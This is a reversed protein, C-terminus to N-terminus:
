MRIFNPRLGADIISRTNNVGIQSTYYRADNFPTVIEINFINSRRSSVVVTLASVRGINPDREPEVNVPTDPQDAPQPQSAAINAEVIDAAAGFDTPINFTWRAAGPHGGTPVAARRAGTLTTPRGAQLPVQERPQQPRNAQGKSREQLVQAIYQKNEIFTPKLRLTCHKRFYANLEPYDRLLNDFNNYRAELIKTITANEGIIPKVTKPFYNYYHHVNDHLRLGFWIRQYISEVLVTNDASIALDFSQVARLISNHIDDVAHNTLDVVEGNEDLYLTDKTFSRTYVHRLMNSPLLVLDFTKNISREHALQYSGKNTVVTLADQDVNLVNEKGALHELMQKFAEQLPTQINDVVCVYTKEQKSKSVGGRIQQMVSLGAEYIKM